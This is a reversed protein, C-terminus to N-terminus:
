VTVVRCEYGMETLKNYCEEQEQENALIVTVGYQNKYNFDSEDFNGTDEAPKDLFDMNFGFSKMDLDFIGDPEDNLLDLNWSAAEGTKNDALRFAKVQEETLEDAIVCPIEDIGLQQAAKYRTHGAVIVGDKDIVIPVLFGFEKISNAVYQVANDNNRPNKEYPRIESINKTIIQM